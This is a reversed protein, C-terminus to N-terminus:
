HLYFRREKNKRGIIPGKRMNFSYETLYLYFYKPAHRRMATQVTLHHFAHLSGKDVHKNKM